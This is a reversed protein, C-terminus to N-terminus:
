FVLRWFVVRGAAGRTCLLGLRDADGLWDCLLWDWPLLPPERLAPEVRV